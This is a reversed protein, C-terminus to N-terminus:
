QFLLLIHNPPNGKQIPNQFNFIFLYYYLLVASEQHLLQPNYLIYNLGFLM